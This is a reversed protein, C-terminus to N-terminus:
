SGCDRVRYGRVVALLWPPQKGVSEVGTNSIAYHVVLHLGTGLQEWLTCLIYRVTSENPTGGLQCGIEWTEWVVGVWEITWGNAGQLSANWVPFLGSQM